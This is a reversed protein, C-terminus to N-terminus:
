ADDYLQQPATNLNSASEYYFITVKNITSSVCTSTYKNLFVNAKYVHLTMVLKKFCLYEM